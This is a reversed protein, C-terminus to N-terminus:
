NQRPKSAFIREINELVSGAIAIIELGNDKQRLIIGTPPFALNGPQNFTEFKVKLNPAHYEPKYEFSKESVEVITSPTHDLYIDGTRVNQSNASYDKM